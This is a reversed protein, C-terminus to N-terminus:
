SVTKVVTSKMLKFNFDLKNKSFIEKLGYKQIYKKEFDIAKKRNQFEGLTKGNIIVIWMCKWNRIFNNIKNNNIKRMIIFIFRLLKNKPIILSVRHTVKKELNQTVKDIEDIFGYINGNKITIKM